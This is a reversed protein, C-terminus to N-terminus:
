AVKSTLGCTDGQFVGADSSEALGYVQERAEAFGLKDSKSMNCEHLYDAADWFLLM